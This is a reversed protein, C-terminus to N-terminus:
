LRPLLRHIHRTFSFGLSGRPYLLLKRATGDWSKKLTQMRSGVQKRRRLVGTKQFIYESLWHNRHEWRRKDVGLEDCPPNLDEYEILGSVLHHAVKNHVAINHVFFLEFRGQLFVEELQVPWIEEGDKGRKRGRARTGLPDEQVGKTVRDIPSASKHDPVPSSVPNSPSRLHTTSTPCHNSLSAPIAATHPGFAYPTQSHSRKRLTRGPAM